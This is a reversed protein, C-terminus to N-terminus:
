RRDFPSEFIDNHNEDIVLHAAVVAHRHFRTQTVWVQANRIRIGLLGKLDTLEDDTPEVLEISNNPEPNLHRPMRIYEVGDFILDVNSTFGPSKPSRILLSGHSVRYEWVQFQRGVLLKNM